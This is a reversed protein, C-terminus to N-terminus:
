RDSTRSLRISRPSVGPSVGARPDPRRGFGQALAPPRDLHLGKRDNIFFAMGRQKGPFIDAPDGM